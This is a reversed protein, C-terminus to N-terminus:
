VIQHDDLAGVQKIESFAMLPGRTLYASVFQVRDHHHTDPYFCRRRRFPYEHGYSTDGERFISPPSACPHRELHESALRTVSFAFNRSQVQFRHSPLSTSATPLKRYGTAHFIPM